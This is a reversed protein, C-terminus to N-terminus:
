WDFQLSSGSLSSGSVEGQLACLGEGVLPVQLM